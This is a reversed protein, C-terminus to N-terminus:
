SSRMRKGKATIYIFPINATTSIAKLERNVQYGDVGPMAIGCLIVDPIAKIAMAIGEKNNIACLIM